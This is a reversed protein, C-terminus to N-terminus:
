LDTPYSLLGEDEDGLIVGTLNKMETESNYRQSCTNVSKKRKLCKTLRHRIVITQKM